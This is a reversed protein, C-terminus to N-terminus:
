DSLEYVHVTKPEAFRDEFTGNTVPLTRGEFRVRVSKFPVGGPLRFRATLPGTAGEPRAALLTRKGEHVRELLQLGVADTTARTAPEPAALIPALGRFEGNLGRLFNVKDPRAQLMGSPCLGVGTAGNVVAQYGRWRLTEIPQYFYTELGVVVATRKERMLPFAFERIRPVEAFSAEVGIVDWDPVFSRMTPNHDPHGVLWSEPGMVLHNPDAQRIWRIATKLWEVRERWNGDQLQMEGEGLAYGFFRPDAKVKEVEALLRAKVEADPARNKGYVVTTLDVVKGGIYNPPYDAEPLMGFHPTWFVPFYPQGNVRLIGRADVATKEIREPLAPKPPREMWGFSPAEAETLLRENEGQQLYLRFTVRQDRVPESWPHAKKGEGTLRAQFLRDTPIYDPAQQPALLSAFQRVEARPRPEAGPTRLVAECRTLERFSDEAVNLNAYASVAEGPYLYHASVGAELIRSPTGFPLTIPRSRDLGPGVFRLVLRYQEKWNACLREIRYPLTLVLPGSAGASRVPGCPIEKGAPDLLKAELQVSPANAPPREVTVRAINRGWLRDGVDIDIVRFPLAGAPAPGTRAPPAPRANPAGHEWLQLDDLWVLGVHNREVIVGDFGRACLFLRLVRVPKRPSFYKRVCIWDYTGSGTTGMNYTGPNNEMDDGLFDGQPLWAGTDDQAMIELTRLRDAKVMARVELPRARDQRLEIPTSEVALNDGPYVTLRLSHRGSFALARDVEAGGRTESRATHSWGTFSYYDNRFWTWRIPPLWHQAWGLPDLAEFGANLVRNPPEPAAPERCSLDDVWVTGAGRTQVGVIIFWPTGPLRDPEIRVERYEWDHDGGSFAVSAEARGQGTPEPRDARARVGCEVRVFLQPEVGAPVGRTRCWAGVVIPRRPLHAALSQEMRLFEAYQAGGAKDAQEGAARLLQSVESQGTLRLSRFGSRTVTTDWAQPLPVERFRWHDPVGDAQGVGLDSSQLLRFRRQEAFGRHYWDEEFGANLLLNGPAQLSSAPSPPPETGPGDSAARAIRARQPVPDAAMVRPGPSWRTLTYIALLALIFFLPGSSRM